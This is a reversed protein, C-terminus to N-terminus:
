RLPGRGELAPDSTQLRSARRDAAILLAELWALAGPGFRDVLDLTRERWSRGTRASLGLSAPELTLALAPLPATSPDLLVSPLVDGERVGRIPLGRGDADRYDQDKPSAHLAVRVKGHHSAVLYALLDFDDASCALIERETPTPELGACDAPLTSGALRLVETWPGLLAPHMPEHRQLVAFLALASALEHRLGPRRDGDDTRYDGPRKPFAERPAKALDCRDPRDPLRISEQFAPHAKGLDHWKGALVLLRDVEPIGVAIAIERAIEAVESGHSAITKWAAASLDDGGDSEDTQLEAESESGLAALQLLEVTEESKPDFGRERRYGGCDAAVLVVRGPTLMSREAVLWAGEVWDWVWARIGRRLRPRRNKKSEEGCLWDRARLFPVPCLEPRQARLRPSPQPIPEGKPPPRIGRWFVQLDRESGSRIFRSIDLDAGTLDPTTDFLEDLERRLLLQTPEYPFLGRRTADDLSAEFAELHATGVDGGLEKVKELAAWSAELEAPPYPLATAEDHGRDVVVCAGRGGYRACRGFRQVLSSWPALETVVCGASIDVGAEVVQTAVIIHDAGRSCAERSLFRDRWGAREVARFRSHILHIEQTPALTRLADFTECARDVTNCVVLTIRGDSGEALKQHEDFVRQAFGKGESPPINTLSLIKGRAGLCADRQQPLVVSPRRTWEDYRTSTDVSKLWEPQLTASMWWTHRPRFGKACDHDHYAQLQASTALGVDMLQVEDAVWLADHSLLGFELPWRARGAAYGRNLARSLLMDQTGILVACEEPFLTWEGGPEAGGMLLHVGVRRSHDGTGDWFVGVRTLAERIVAQTQDVLVRM